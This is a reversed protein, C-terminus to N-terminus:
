VPHNRIEAATVTKLTFICEGPSIKLDDVVASHHEPVQFVKDMKVGHEPEDVYRPKTVRDLVLVTIVAPSITNWHHLWAATNFLLPVVSSTRYLIGVKYLLINTWIKILQSTWSWVESIFPAACWCTQPELAALIRTCWKHNIHLHLVQNIDELKLLFLCCGWSLWAYLRFIPRSSRSMIKIDLVSSLSNWCILSCVWSISYCFDQNDTIKFM